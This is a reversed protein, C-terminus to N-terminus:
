LPARPVFQCTLLVSRPSRQLSTCNESSRDGQRHFSSITINGKLATTIIGNPQAGLRVYELIDTIGMGAGCLCATISPVPTISTPVLIWFSPRSLRPLSLCIVKPPHTPGLLPASPFSFGRFPLELTLSMGGRGMRLHSSPLDSALLSHQLYRSSLMRM